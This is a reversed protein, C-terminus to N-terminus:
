SVGAGALLSSWLADFEASQLLALQEQQAETFGLLAAMASDPRNTIHIQLIVKNDM